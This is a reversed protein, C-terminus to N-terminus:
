FLDNIPQFDIYKWNIFINLAGQTSIVFDDREDYILIHILTSKIKLGITKMWDDINIFSQM